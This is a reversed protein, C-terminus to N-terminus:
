VFGGACWSGAIDTVVAESSKFHSLIGSKTSEDSHRTWCLGKRRRFSGGFRDFDATEGVVEVRRGFDLM